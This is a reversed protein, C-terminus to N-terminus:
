RVELTAGYRRIAAVMGDTTHEKAVILRFIGHLRAAEETVPGICVYWPRGPLSLPKLGQEIALSIFNDVTSPSTLTIFDVGAKLAALGNPDPETPLTRYVVVEHPLGGAERILHPLADRAIEAQPLLICKGKVDGLGPRIAESVYEAPIFDPELGRARLADATKQGIAAVKPEGAQKLRRGKLGRDIFVEVGNASTFVVWAYSALQAIAQQMETLDDAPRIEIVPLYVPEFGATLLAQAFPESQTRPRTILVRM